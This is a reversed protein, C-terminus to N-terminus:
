RIRFWFGTGNTATGAWLLDDWLPSLTRHLDPRTSLYFNPLVVELRDGGLLWCALLYQESYYWDAIQPPYDWPLFIDHVHVLVGSRLRPLVDVFAVTADSNMFSRHSGDFFCLDGAELEDFVALDADELPAREVRDCLADIEARPQPDISTITTPLDHDTIARRAWKTSNGSGVEVYRQPKTSALFGYLAVADLGQYWGNHWWPGTADPRALPVQKLQDVYPLFARLQEEFRPALEDLMPGIQPHAPSGYGHRPRPDVPYDLDITYRPPGTEAAPATRGAM